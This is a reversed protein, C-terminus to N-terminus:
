GEEGHEPPPRNHLSKAENCGFCVYRAHEVKGDFEDVFEAVEGLRDPGVEAPRIPGRHDGLMATDRDAVEDITVLWVAKMCMPKDKRNLKVKFISEDIGPQIDFLIPVEGSCPSVGVVASGIEVIFPDISGADNRIRVAADLALEKPANHCGVDSMRVQSTPPRMRAKFYDM